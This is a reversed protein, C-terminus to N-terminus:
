VGFRGPAFCVFDKISLENIFFNSPLPNLICGRRIGRHSSTECKGVKATCNSKSYISKM